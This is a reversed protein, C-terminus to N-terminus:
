ETAALTKLFLSNRSPRALGQLGFSHRKCCVSSPEPVGGKSAPFRVPQHADPITGSTGIGRALHLTLSSRAGSGPLGTGPRDSGHLRLPVCIESAFTGFGAAWAPSTRERIGIRTNPAATDLAQCPRDPSSSVNFSWRARACPAPARARRRRRTLHVVFSPGVM